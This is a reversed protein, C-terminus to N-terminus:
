DNVFQLSKFILFRCIQVSLIQNFFFIGSKKWFGGNKGSKEQGHPLGALRPSSFLVKVIINM